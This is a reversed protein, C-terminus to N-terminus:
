NIQTAKYYRSGRSDRLFLSGDKFTDVVVLTMLEVLEKAKVAGMGVVPDSEKELKVSIPGSHNIFLDESKINFYKAINLVSDASPVMTGRAWRSLVSQSTGIGKAITQQALKSEKILAALKKHDFEAM